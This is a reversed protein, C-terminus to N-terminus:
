IIEVTKTVKVQKPTKSVVEYFKVDTEFDFDEFDEGEIEAVLKKITNPGFPRSDGYSFVVVAIYLKEAPKAATKKPAKKAAPTQNYNVTSM